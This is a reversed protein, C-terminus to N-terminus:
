VMMVVDGEVHIVMREGTEDPSTRGYITGVYFDIVNILIIKVHTIYNYQNKGCRCSYTYSRFSIIGVCNM